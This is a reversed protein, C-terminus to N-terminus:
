SDMARESHIHSFKYPLEGLPDIDLIVEIINPNGLLGNQTLIYNGIWVLQMLM